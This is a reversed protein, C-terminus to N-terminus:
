RFATKDPACRPCAEGVCEIFYTEGSQVLSAAVTRAEAATDFPQWDFHEKLSWHIHYHLKTTAM